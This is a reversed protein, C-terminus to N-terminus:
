TKMLQGKSASYAGKYSAMTNAVVQQPKRARLASSDPFTASGLIIRMAFATKEELYEMWSKDRQLPSPFWPNARKLMGNSSPTAM